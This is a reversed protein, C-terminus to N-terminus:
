LGRDRARTEAEAIQERTMRAAVQDRLTRASEDGATAALNLWMHASVYDQGVGRGLFYAAGLIGQARADGQGAARRSWRVAEGYNQAVGNGFYYAAGLM